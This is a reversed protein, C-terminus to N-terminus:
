PLLQEWHAGMAYETVELLLSGHTPHGKLGTLNLVSPTKTILDNLYSNKLGRGNFKTM